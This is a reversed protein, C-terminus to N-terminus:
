PEAVCGAGEECSVACTSAGGCDTVCGAQCNEIECVSAGACELTCGGGPCSVRCVESDICETVCGGAACELECLPTDQCSSLCGIALCELACGNPDDCDLLCGPLACSEERPMPRESDAETAADGTGASLVDDPLQCGLALVASLMAALAIRASGPTALGRKM